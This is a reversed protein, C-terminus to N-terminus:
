MIPWTCMYTYSANNVFPKITEVDSCQKLGVMQMAGARNCRSSCNSTLEDLFLIFADM